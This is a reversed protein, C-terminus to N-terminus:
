DTTKHSKKRYKKVRLVTKLVLKRTLFNNKDRSLMPEIKEARKHNQKKKRKYRKDNM